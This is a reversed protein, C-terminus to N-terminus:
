KATDVAKKVRDMWEALPQGFDGENRGPVYVYKFRVECLDTKYWLTHESGEAVRVVGPEARRLAPFHLRELQDFLDRLTKDPYNINRIEVKFQKALKTPDYSDLKNNRYLDSLRWMIPTSGPPISYEVARDQGDSRRICVNIQSEPDATPIFRLSAVVSCDLPSDSPAPFLIDLIPDYLDLFAAKEEKKPANQARIRLLIPALLIFFLAM